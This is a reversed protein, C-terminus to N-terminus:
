DQADTQDDPREAFKWRRHIWFWQDMHDRVLAELRDGIEQTMAAPDGHAVPEQMLIRFGLGTGDRLAFAPILVANYKLALEATVLSTRAPKGFFPLPIGDRAYLDTLIGLVGGARLHRVLQMMGRRGQEFLPQGGEALAQVYHANFYPNSMRRYLVGMEHGHHRLNARIANYNGFHATVLIVARGEARAQELAALGPGEVPAARARAAFDKGSYTEILTRGANDPVARMLRRVEAAPLDPCVHALNARVRRRWGAVPAIVHAALWGILPVRLRYPLALALGFMGRVVLNGLYHGIARGRPPLVDADDTM